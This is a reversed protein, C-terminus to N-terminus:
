REPIILFYLSKLLTKDLHYVRFDLIHNYILMYTYMDIDIHM